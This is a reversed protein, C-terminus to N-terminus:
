FSPSLNEEECKVVKEVQDCLCDNSLFGDTMNNDSIPSMCIKGAVIVNHPM